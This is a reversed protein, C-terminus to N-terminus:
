NGPTLITLGISFEGDTRQEDFLDYSKRRVEARVALFEKVYYKLGAGVAFMVSHDGREFEVGFASEALGGHAQALSGSPTFDVDMWGVALVAYPQWPTKRRALPHYLAGIQYSTFVSEVGGEIDQVRTGSDLDDITQEFHTGSRNRDYSVETEIYPNWIYGIGLGAYSDDELELTGRLVSRSATGDFDFDVSATSEFDVPSQSDFQAWAGFPHFEWNQEEQGARAAPPLLM